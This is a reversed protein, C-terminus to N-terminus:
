RSARQHYLAQSKKIMEVRDKCQEQSAAKGKVAAVKAKIENAQEKSLAQAKVIM